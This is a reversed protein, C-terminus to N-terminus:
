KVKKDNMVKFIKESGIAKLKHMDAITKLYLDKQEPYFWEDNGDTEATIIMLDDEFIVKIANSGNIVYADNNEDVGLASVTFPPQVLLIFKLDKAPTATFKNKGIKIQKM